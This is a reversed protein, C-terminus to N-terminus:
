TLYADDRHFSVDCFYNRLIYTMHDFSCFPRPWTLYWRAIVWSTTRGDHSTVRRRVVFHILQPGIAWHVHSTAPRLIKDSPIDYSSTRHPIVLVHTTTHNCNCWIKNDIMTSWRLNQGDHAMMSWRVSQPGLAKIDGEVRQMKQHDSYVTM